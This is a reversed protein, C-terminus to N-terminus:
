AVILDIRFEPKKKDFGVFLYRDGSSCKVISKCLDVTNFKEFYYQNSHVFVRFDAKAITLKAFDELVKNLYGHWESECALKLGELNSWNDGEIFQEVPLWSGKRKILWVADFLWEPQSCNSRPEYGLKKGLSDLANLVKKTRIESGSAIRENEAELAANELALIIELEQPYLQEQLLTLSGTVEGKKLIWTALTVEGM